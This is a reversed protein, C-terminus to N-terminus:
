VYDAPEADAVIRDKDGITMARNGVQDDFVPQQGM